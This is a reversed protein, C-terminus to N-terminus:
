FLETERDRLISTPRVLPQKQQHISISRSVNCYLPLLLRWRSRVDTRGLPVGTAWCYRNGSFYSGRWSQLRLSDCHLRESLRVGSPSTIFMSGSGPRCQSHVYCPSSCLSLYVFLCLSLGASLCIYLYCTCLSESPCLHGHSLFCVFLRAILCDSPWFYLSAFLRVFEFPLSHYAGMFCKLFYVFAQKILPTREYKIPKFISQYFVFFCAISCFWFALLSICNHM